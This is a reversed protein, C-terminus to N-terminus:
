QHVIFLIHLNLSRDFKCMLKLLISTFAHGQKNDFSHTCVKRVRKFMYKIKHKCLNIDISRHSFLHYYIDNSLLAIPGFNLNLYITGIRKKEEVTISKLCTIM